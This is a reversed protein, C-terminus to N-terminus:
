GDKTNSRGNTQRVSSENLCPPERQMLIFVPRFPRDFHFYITHNDTINWILVLRKFHEQSHCDPLNPPKAAAIYM